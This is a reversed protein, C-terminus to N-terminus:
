EIIIRRVANLRDSKITLLYVGQPLGATSFRHIIVHQGNLSETMVVKGQLDILEIVLEENNENYLGITFSEGQVV